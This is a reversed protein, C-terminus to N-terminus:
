FLGEGYSVQAGFLAHNLLLGVEQTGELKRTMFRLNTLLEREMTTLGNAYRLKTIDGNIHQRKQGTGYTGKALKHYLGETANQLQRAYGVSPESGDDVTRVGLSPTEM